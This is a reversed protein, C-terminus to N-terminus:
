KGEDVDGPIALTGLSSLRFGRLKWLEGVKHFVATFDISEIAAAFALEILAKNHKENFLPESNRQFKGCKIEGALRRTLKVLDRDSFPPPNTKIYKIADSVMTAVDDGVLHLAELIQCSKPSAILRLITIADGQVSEDDFEGAACRKLFEWEAETTPELLGGIVECAWRNELAKEKQPRPLRPVVWALDDSDGLSTLLCLSGLGVHPDNALERLTSRFANEKVFLEAELDGGQFSGALLERLERVRARPELKAVRIVDAHRFVQDLRYETAFPGLYHVDRQYGEKSLGVSEFGEGKMLTEDYTGRVKGNEDSRLKLLTVESAKGTGGSLSWTLYIDVGCVPRGLSDVIRASFEKAPARPVFVLIALAVFTPILNRTM